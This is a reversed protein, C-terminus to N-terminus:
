KGDILCTCEKRGNHEGKVAKKHSMQIGAMEGKNLAIYPHGQYEEEEM